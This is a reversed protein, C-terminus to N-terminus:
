TLSIKNACCQIRLILMTSICELTRQSSQENLDIEGVPVESTPKSKALKFFNKKKDVIDKHKKGKAHDTLASRGSSSLEVTKHCFTCRAKTNDKDKSL